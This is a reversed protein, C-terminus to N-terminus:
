QYNNLREIMADWEDSNFNKQSNIYKTLKDLHMKSINKLSFNRDDSLQFALSENLSNHNIYSVNPSTIKDFIIDFSKPNRIASVLLSNMYVESLLKNDKAIDMIIDVFLSIDKPNSNNEVLNEISYDSLEKAERENITSSIQELYTKNVLERISSNELHQKQTYKVLQLIDHRDSISSDGLKILAHYTNTMKPLVPSLDISQMADMVIGKFANNKGVWATQSYLDWLINAKQTKTLNNNNVINDYINKEFLLLYKNHEQNIPPVLGNTEAIDFPANEIIGYLNKIYNDEKHIDKQTSIKDNTSLSDTAVMNIKNENLQIKDNISLNSKNNPYFYYILTSIGIILILVLFILYKKM